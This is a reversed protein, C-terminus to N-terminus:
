FVMMIQSKTDSPLSMEFNNALYLNPFSQDFLSAQVNLVM